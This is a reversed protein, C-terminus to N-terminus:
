NVKDFSDRKTIDYAIIIGEVKRLYANMSM